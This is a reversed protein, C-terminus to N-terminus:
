NTAVREIAPILETPLQDDGALAMRLLERRAREAARILPALAIGAHGDPYRTLRLLARQLLRAAPEPKNQFCIKHMAAAVQILGQLFQREDEDREDRWLEEWLEHAEFHDGARYAALGRDFWASRQHDPVLPGKDAAAPFLPADGLLVIVPVADAALTCRQGDADLSGEIQRGCHRIAERLGAIDIGLFDAPLDALKAHARELLRVSGRPAVQNLAKHVASAVQILAQLLRSHREDDQQHWLEEWFEHAEYHEGRRYADLGQMFLASPDTSESVKHATATAVPETLADGLAV